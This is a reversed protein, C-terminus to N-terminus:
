DKKGNLKAREALLDRLEDTRKPNLFETLQEIADDVIPIFDEANKVVEEELGPLYEVSQVRLLASCESIPTWHEEDPYHDDYWGHCLCWSGKLKLVGLMDHRKVRNREYEDDPHYSRYEYRVVHPIHFKTLREEAQKWLDNLRDYRSFLKESAKRARVSLSDQTTM